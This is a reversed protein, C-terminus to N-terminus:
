SERGDLKSTLSAFFRQFDILSAGALFLFLCVRSIVLATDAKWHKFKSKYWNISLLFSSSEIDIKGGDKAYFFDGKHQFPCSLM